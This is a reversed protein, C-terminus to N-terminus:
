CCELPRWVRDTVEPDDKLRQHAPSSDEISRRSISGHEFLYHDQLSGIKFFLFIPHILNPPPLFLFNFLRVQGVFECAHRKAIEKAKEVGGEIRVAIQNSLVPDSTNSGYRAPLFFLFSFYFFQCNMTFATSQNISEDSKKLDLIKGRKWVIRRPKACCVCHGRSRGYTQMTYVIVAPDTTSDTRSRIPYVIISHRWWHFLWVVSCSTRHILAEWRTDAPKKLLDRTTKSIVCILALKPVKQFAFFLGFILFFLCGRTSRWSLLWDAV